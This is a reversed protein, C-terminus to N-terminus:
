NQVGLVYGAAVRFVGNCTVGTTNLTLAISSPAAVLVATSGDTFAVRAISGEEVTGYGFPCICGSSAPLSSILQAGVGTQTIGYAAACRYTCSTPDNCFSPTVSTLVIEGWTWVGTAKQGMVNGAVVSYTGTCTYGAETTSDISVGAGATTAMASSGSPYFKIYASNGGFLALGADCTCSSAAPLLSLFYGTTANFKDVIFGLSCLYACDSPQVCMPPTVSTLALAGVGHDAPGSLDLVTGGTVTYSFSCEGSPDHAVVNTTNTDVYVYGGDSMNFWATKGKM